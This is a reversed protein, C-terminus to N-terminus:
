FKYLSASPCPLPDTYVNWAMVAASAHRFFFWLISWEAQAQAEKPANAFNRFNVKPKTIDIRGDAHFTETGVRRIKSFNPIQAKKFTVRPFFFNSTEKFGSLIVPVKCSSTHVNIVIDRQIRRLILFIESLLRLYFWVVCKINLLKKRFDDQKLFSTSFYPVALCAVSLLVFRRM